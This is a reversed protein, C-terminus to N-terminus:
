HYTRITGNEYGCESFFSVLKEINQLQINEVTESGKKAGRAELNSMFAVYSILSDSKPILCPPQMFGKIRCLISITLICSANSDNLFLLIQQIQNELTAENNRLKINEEQNCRIVADM